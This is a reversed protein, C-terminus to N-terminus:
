YKFTVIWSWRWGSGGYFQLSFNAKTITIGSWPDGMMGGDHRGYVISDNRAVLRYKGDRQGFLVMAPRLRDEYDERDEQVSRQVLVLDRLKDGNMDGSATDLIVHGPLIFSELTGHRSVQARGDSAVCLLLLFIISRM